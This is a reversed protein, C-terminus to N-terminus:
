MVIRSKDKRSLRDLTPTRVVQDNLSINQREVKRGPTCAAAAAVAARLAPQVAHTGSFGGAGGNGGETWTEILGQAKIGRYTACAHVCSM